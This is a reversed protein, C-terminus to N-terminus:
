ENGNLAVNPLLLTVSYYVNLRAGSLIPLGKYEAGNMLYWKLQAPTLQPDIALLLGAAGAVFPSAMSTGSYLIYRNYPLTSGIKVGPAAIDVTSGFNSFYALADNNDTAAVSIINDLNYSSPYSPVVDNNTEENGAAVVFLMNAAQIAEYESYSFQGGGYSNNSVKVGMTAAYEVAEIIAASSSTCFIGYMKKFIKLPMIRVNWNVGAGGIGNNGVAGVIGSTHTGHGECISDDDSPDNDNSIFDWGNVDDIYGNGDDDIGNDPIEGPNVWINAALDEHQLDVGSDIMAVVTDPSGTSISWAQQANIDAGPTGRFQGVNDLGWLYRYFQDNPRTGTQHLYRIYNPEVYEVLSNLKLTSIAKKVTDVPVEVLLTGSLQMKKKLKGQIAKLLASKEVKTAGLKFKVLLEGPVVEPRQPQGAIVTGSVFFIGVVGAVLWIIKGIRSM